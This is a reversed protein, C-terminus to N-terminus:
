VVKEFWVNYQYVQHGRELLEWPTYQTSNAGVRLIYGYSKTYEQVLQYQDFTMNQLNQHGFLIKIGHCTLTFLVEFIFQEVGEKEAIEATQEELQLQISNPERPAQGFIQQALEILNDDM